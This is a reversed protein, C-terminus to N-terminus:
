KKVEKKSEFFLIFIAFLVVGITLACDALNFIPFNIFDLKIFDRVYGLFLRDILNGFAGSLILGFSFYFLSNKNKFFKMCIVFVIIFIVSFLALLYPNGSLFSWAAGTNHASFVSFFGSVVVFSKGDLFHKSVLDAILVLVFIVAFAFVFKLKKKMLRNYKM